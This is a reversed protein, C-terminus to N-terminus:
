LSFSLPLVSHSASLLALEASISCFIDPIKEPAKKVLVGQNFIGAQFKPPV